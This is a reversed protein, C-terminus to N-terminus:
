VQSHNYVKRCSSIDQGKRKSDQQHPQLSKKDFDKYDKVIDKLEPKYQTGYEVTVKEKNLAFKPGSMAYATGGVATWWWSSM